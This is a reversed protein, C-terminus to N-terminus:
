PQIEFIKPPSSEIAVTEVLEKQLKQVESRGVRGVRVRYFQKGGQQVTKLYADFGKQKLQLIYNEARSKNSVALLQVTYLQQSNASDDTATVQKNKKPTAATKSQELQMSELKGLPTIEMQPEGQTQEPVREAKGVLVGIWFLAGMSATLLVGLIVFGKADVEIQYTKTTKTREM